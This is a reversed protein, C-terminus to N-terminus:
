RAPQSYQFMEHGCTTLGLQSIASRATTGGLVDMGVMAGSSARRLLGASVCVRRPWSRASEATLAALALPRELRLCSQYSLVHVVPRVHSSGFRSLVTHGVKASCGERRFFVFM